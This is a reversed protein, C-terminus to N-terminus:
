GKGLVKAAPLTGAAVPTRNPVLVKIDMSGTLGGPDWATVTITASGVSEGKIM